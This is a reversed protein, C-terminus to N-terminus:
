PGDGGPDEAVDQHQGGPARHGAQPCAPRGAQRDRAQGARQVVPEAVGRERRRPPCRAPWSRCGSRRSRAPRSRRRGRRGAAATRRAPRRSGARRPFAPRWPRTPGSRPSRTSAAAQPHRQGVTSHPSVITACSSESRAARRGAARPSPSEGLGGPRPQDRGARPHARRPRRRRPRRQALRGLAGLLRDGLGGAQVGRPRRGARQDDVAAAPDVGVDVRQPWARGPRRRAPCACAAGAGDAATARDAALDGAALGARQQGEQGALDEALVVERRGLPVGRSSSTAGLMTCTSRSSPPRGAGVEPEPHASCSSVWRTCNVATGQSRSGGSRARARGPWRAQRGVGLLEAGASCCTAACGAPPAACRRRPRQGVQERGRLLARLEAPDGGDHRQELPVGVHHHVVDPGCTM